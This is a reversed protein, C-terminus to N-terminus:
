RRLLERYGHVLEVVLGLRPVGVRGGLGVTSRFGVRLGIGIRAGVRVGLGEGRM